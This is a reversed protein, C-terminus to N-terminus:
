QPLKPTIRHWNDPFGLADLFVNIKVTHLRRELTKLRALLTNHLKGYESQSLFCQLIIFVHYPSSKACSNNIGYKSHLDKYYKVSNKCKFGFLRNDHACVNRVEGINEVFSILIAPTFNINIKIHECIFSYLKKAITDQLSIPLTKLIALMEGFTLYDIIVWFPVEHHNNYYHQISNTKKSSKHKNIISNMKSIVFTISRIKDKTSCDYNNKDLYFYPTSPFRESFVYAIASKIHKEAELIAKLFSYKIEKDYFYCNTIESFNTGPIYKNQNQTQVFYKSYGNIISYYNNTLLYKKAQKYDTIILGRKHLLEIQEPITKFPKPM